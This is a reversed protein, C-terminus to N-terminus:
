QILEVIWQIPTVQDTNTVNFTLMLVQSSAWALGTLTSSTPVQGYIGTNDSATGTTAGTNLIIWQTATAGTTGSTTNFITQGNLSLIYTVNAGGASHNFAATIRIGKLTAVTSAPLTYTYVTQASGNGTIAGANAQANLLTVSNGSSAGDLTKNTLAQADTLGVIASGPGNLGDLLDANLNTVKTNSAVVLPATGSAITSQLQPATIAAQFPQNGADLRAYTSDGTPATAAPTQTIPTINSIDLAVGSKAHIPVEAGGKGGVYIQMGYWVSTHSGGCEIDGGLLGTSDRTSYLTGSIAGNSAAAFDFFYVGGQSPAIVATGNVRPINGGCGRLWFRVFAGQGVTGTGLNQLTGTVTTTAWAAPALLLLLFVLLRKM